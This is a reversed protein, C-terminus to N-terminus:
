DQLQINRPDEFQNVFSKRPIGLQDEALKVLEFLDQADQLGDHSQEGMQFKDMLTQMSHSRDRPYRDRFSTLSDGFESIIQCLGDLDQVRHRRANNILNPADFRFCNHAILIVNKRPDHVWNFFDILGERPTVVNEVERGNQYLIGRSKTFGNIESAGRQIEGPPFITRSFTSGNERVAGIQIIDVNKGLGTTELDFFILTNRM